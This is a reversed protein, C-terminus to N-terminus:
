LFTPGNPGDNKRCPNGTHAEGVRRGRRWHRDRAVAPNGSSVILRDSERLALRRKKDNRWGEQKARTILAAPVRRAEETGHTQKPARWARLGRCAKSMRVKASTETNPESIAVGYGSADTAKSASNSLCSAVGVQPERKERSVSRSPRELRFVRLDEPEGETLCDETKPLQNSKEM